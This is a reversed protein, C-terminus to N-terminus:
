PAVLGPDPSLPESLVLHGVLTEVIEGEIRIQVQEVGPLEALTNVISYVTFSEGASGGWHSSYLEESFDADAIGGGIKVGLVKVDSPITKGHAPYAPGEILEELVAVAKERGALIIQREERVLRDFQADAFYLIVTQREAEAPPLTADEKEAAPPPLAPTEGPACGAPLLPLLLM